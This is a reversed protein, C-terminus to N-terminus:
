GSRSASRNTSAARRARSFAHASAPAAARSGFNLGTLDQMWHRVLIDPHVVRHDGAKMRRHAIHAIDTRPMITEAKPGYRSLPSTQKLFRLTVNCSPFRSNPRDETCLRPVCGDCIAKQRQPCKRRASNLYKLQTSASSTARANSEFQAMRGCDLAQCVYRYM